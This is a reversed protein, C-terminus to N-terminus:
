EDLLLLPVWPMSMGKPNLSVSLMFNGPVHDETMSVRILITQGKTVSVEVASDRLLGTDRGACQTDCNDNCSLEKSANGPCASHISLVSDM